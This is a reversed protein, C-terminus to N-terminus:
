HIWVILACIADQETQERQPLPLFSHNQLPIQNEADEQQAHQEENSEPDEVTPLDDPVGDQPLCQLSEYDIAVDAYFPNNAKLWMIAQLVKERRVTCDRHTNDTGDRRIILYPLHAINRPLRNLIGQIDQPLNLVHGRHGRQGGHKRYVCMIPSARAILMEEIDTLGQLELPLAGPDMDNEQSYLKPNGKDRKCRLCEFRALTLGQKTPWAEKCTVYQRHELSNISGHFKTMENEVWQQQHLPQEATRWGNSLYQEHTNQMHHLEQQRDNRRVADNQRYGELRRLREQNTDNHIRIQNNQRLRQLQQQREEDTENQIRIDNNQRLRQLRLQREELRM